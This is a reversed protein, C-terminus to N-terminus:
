QSVHRRLRTPGEAKHRHAEAVDGSGQGCYRHRTIADKHACCGRPWDSGQFAAMRCALKAELPASSFVRHRSREELRRFASGGTAGLTGFSAIAAEALPPDPVSRSSTTRSIKNLRLEGNGPIPAAPQIISAPLAAHQSKTAQSKLMSDSTTTCEPVLIDRYAQVEPTAVQAQHGACEETSPAERCAPRLHPGFSRSCQGASTMVAPHDQCSMNGM